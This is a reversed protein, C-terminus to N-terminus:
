LPVIVEIDDTVWLPGTVPLLSASMNTVNEAFEQTPEPQVDVTSNAQAPCIESPKYQPVPLPAALMVPAGKWMRVCLRSPPPAAFWSRLTWSAAIELGVGVGVAVFVGTVGVVVFVAVLVGVFVDVGAFVSVGVAVLQTSYQVVAVFVGVAVFVFVGVPVTMISAVSVGVAVVHM